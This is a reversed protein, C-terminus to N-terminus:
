TARRRMLVMRRFVTADLGTRRCELAAREVDHPFPRVSPSRHTGTQQGLGRALCEKLDRVLEPTTLHEIGREVTFATQCHEVGIEVPGERVAAEVLQDKMM